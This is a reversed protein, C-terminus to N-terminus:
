TKLVVVTLTGAPLDVTSGTNNTLLVSAINAARVNATVRWGATTIGAFGVTAPDGVVAGQVPVDVSASAGNALSAPNWNLTGVIVTAIMGASSASGLKPM